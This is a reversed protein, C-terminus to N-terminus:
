GLSQSHWRAPRERKIIAVVVSFVISMALLAAISRAFGFSGFTAFIALIVMRLAFRVLVADIENGAIAPFNRGFQYFGSPHSRPGSSAPRIRFQGLSTIPCAGRLGRRSAGSSPREAQDIARPASPRSFASLIALPLDPHSAEVSQDLM